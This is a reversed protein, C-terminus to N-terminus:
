ARARRRGLTWPPPDSAPFSQALAEDVAGDTDAAVPKRTRAPRGGVIRYRWGKRRAFALAAEATPFGMEHGALPDRSRTWGMLPEIDSGVSADFALTWGPAGLGSQMPSRSRPRITVSPVPGSAAASAGPLEPGDARTWTWDSSPPPEVAEVRARHLGGDGCRWSFSAGPRLGLLAAGPLATVDLDGSQVDPDGPYVLRGVTEASSPQEVFRVVARMRVLDEPAEASAVVTARLVQDWLLSLAPTQEAAGCVIEALREYDASVLLVPPLGGAPGRQRPQELPYRPGRRFYRVGGDPFRNRRRDVGLVKLDLREGSPAAWRFSDGERLGLLAAGLPTLVSIQGRAPDAEHPLVLQVTVTRRSTRDLYTVMAGLHAWDPQAEGQLVTARGLEETLLRAGASADKAALAGLRAIEDATL